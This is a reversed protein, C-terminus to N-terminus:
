FGLINKLEAEDMGGTQVPKGRPKRKPQVQSKRIRFETLQNRTQWKGITNDPDAGEGVTATFGCDSCKGRWYDEPIGPENASPTFHHYEWEMGEGCNMCKTIMTDTM